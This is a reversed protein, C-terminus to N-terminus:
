HVPPGGEGSLQRIEVSMIVGLNRDVLLQLPFQFLTGPGLVHSRHAPPHYALPCCRGVQSARGVWRCFSGGIMGRGYNFLTQLLENHLAEKIEISRLRGKLHSGVGVAARRRYEGSFDVNDEDGDECETEREESM